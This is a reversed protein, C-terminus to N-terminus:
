SKVRIIQKIAIKDSFQKMSKPFQELTDRIDFCDSDPKSFFSHCIPDTLTESPACSLCACVDSSGSSAPTVIECEICRAIEKCLAICSNRIKIRCQSDQAFVELEAGPTLGLACLRGRISPVSSISRVRWRSGQQAEDLKM